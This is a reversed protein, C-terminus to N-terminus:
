GEPWGAPLSNLYRELLVSLRTMHQTVEGYLQAQDSDGPQPAPLVEMSALLVAIASLTAHSAGTLAQSPEVPGNAAHGAM